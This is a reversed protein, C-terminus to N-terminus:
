KCIEMAKRAEKREKMGLMEDDAIFMFLVGQGETRRTTIMIM